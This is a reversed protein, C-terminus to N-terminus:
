GDKDVVEPKKTLSLLVIADRGPDMGAALMRLTRQSDLDFAAELSPRADALAKRNAHTAALVIVLRDAGLDRQKVQAARLESQIDRLRTIVEVAIACVGELVVDVARLDGPIPIPVDLGVNWARGVRAVFGNIYKIQVVDRIAAGVPYLKVSLKLGLVASHRAVQDITMAKVIRREVASIRVRRVGVARGVQTQSLGHALRADRLEDAVSSMVRASIRAGEDVPDSRAAM